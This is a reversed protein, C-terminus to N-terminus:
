ANQRLWERADDALALWMAKIDSVEKLVGVDVLHACLDKAYSLAFSGERSETTQPVAQPAAQAAGPTSGNPSSPPAEGLMEWKDVMKMAYDADPPTWERFVVKGRAGVAPTQGEYNRAIHLTRSQGEDTTLSVKAGGKEKPEVGTITGVVEM